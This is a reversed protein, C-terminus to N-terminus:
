PSNVKARVDSARSYLDTIYPDDIGLLSLHEYTSALYDFNTGLMGEATAIMRAQDSIPIETRVWENAHNAAFSLADIRGQDTDLSLWIPKYADVLMERRFLVFTEHDVKAAEIRFALGECRSRADIALMLGPAESSGRGGTDWLCFSRGYAGTRARRVEAFELAPDWMLSGYGFVWLDRDWHEELWEKRNAERLECPTRWDVPQGAEIARRDIIELDLNRFFSDRAPKIQARLEPHFHFPDPHTM